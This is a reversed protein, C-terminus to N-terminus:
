DFFVPHTHSNTRPLQRTSTSDNGNGQSPLIWNYIFVGGCLSKYYHCNREMWVDGVWREMVILMEGGKNWRMGRGGCDGWLGGFDLGFLERFLCVIRTGIRVRLIQMIRRLRAVADIGAM